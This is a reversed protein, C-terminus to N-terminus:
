KFHIANRPCRICVRVGTAPDKGENFRLYHSFWAVYCQETRYSYHRVRLVQRIEDLLRM